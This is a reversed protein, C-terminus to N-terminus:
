MSLLKFSLGTAGTDHPGINLMQPIAFEAADIQV